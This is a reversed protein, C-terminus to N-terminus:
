KENSPRNEELSPVIKRMGQKLKHENEGYDKKM